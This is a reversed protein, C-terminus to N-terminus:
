GGGARRESNRLYGKAEMCAEMAHYKDVLSGTAKAEARCERKDNQWQERAAGTFHNDKWALGSFMAVMFVLVATM